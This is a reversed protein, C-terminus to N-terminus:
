IVPIEAMNTTYCPSLYERKMQFPLTEDSQPKTQLIPTGASKVSQLKREAFVGVLATSGAAETGGLATPLSSALRLTGRGYRENIQDFSQMLPELAKHRNHSTDFLDLQPTTDNTLANLAIMVKRYKYGPRYIRKLLVNAATQIEPLYASPYPLEATAQNAYQDGEAFANTMVFVSIYRCSLHEARMRSVAEQTYDALATTIDNLEYVPKQFSRSVMINQRPAAEIKDIATIGNLEQVTNFGTITLNKKAKDLPYNKLGLATSIGHRKLFAAKSQGIGWIDEVPYHSLEDDPNAVTWDFVGGRKKALKNCLKALTKTPAIGVAVPIGTEKTVTNKIDLAIVAYTTPNWNPFFLFSEDISYIEIDPTYRSYIVNMRASMDAYLTYNSSFVAVGQKELQYKNEFFVDGRKFGLAKCEANLAIIIGDNNSLVAIPSHYLDPRFIRECSAYFSNGDIHM